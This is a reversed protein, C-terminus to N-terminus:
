KRAVRCAEKTWIIREVKKVEDRGGVVHVLKRYM